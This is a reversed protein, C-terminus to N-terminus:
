NSSINSKHICIGRARRWSLCQWNWIWQEVERWHYWVFCKNIWYKSESRIYYKYEFGIAVKVSFNSCVGRRVEVWFSKERKVVIIFSTVSLNKGEISLTKASTSTWWTGHFVVNGSYKFNMTQIKQHIM